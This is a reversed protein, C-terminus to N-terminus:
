LCFNIYLTIDARLCLKSVHVHVSQYYFSLRVTKITVACWPRIGSTIVLNNFPMQDELPKKDYHVTQVTQIKM